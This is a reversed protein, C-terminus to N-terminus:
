TTRTTCTPHPQPTSPANATFGFTTHGGAPIRANHPANTVTIKGATVTFTGNWLNSIAHGAEQPWTVAWNVLTQDGTNHITVEAQYGGPWQNTITFRATCVEPPPPVVTSTTTTTTPQPQAEPTPDPTRLSLGITIGAAVLAAATTLVTTRRWASRRPVEPPDDLVRTQPRETVVEDLLACFEAMTPREAPDHRLARALVEALPGTSTTPQACPPHGERAAYLTAALSYVDSAFVAGEGAAVEPAWYAPTGVVARGDTVTGEGIARAIGFDAIKATGDDTLLINFPSVDRHVVGAAHAAALASAVQWGVGAVLSEPLPGTDVLDALTHSPLYELVLCTRGGHDVVDHVSIVHPHRLRAAVRGERVVRERDGDGTTLFKLAVVRDLREDRARWVVGAAGRGAPALLRYRGAIVENHEPM